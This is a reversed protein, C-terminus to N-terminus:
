LILTLGVALGVCAGFMWEAEDTRSWILRCALYAPGKLAGAVALLVGWWSGAAALALGPALTTAMGTMSLAWVEYARRAGAIRGSPVLRRLWAWQREEVYGGIIPDEPHTSPEPHTALDMYAGHGMTTAGFAALWALAILWWDAGAVLAPLVLLAAWLGIEVARPLAYDGWLKKGGRLRYIYSGTAACAIVILLATM